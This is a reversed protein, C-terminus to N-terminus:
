NAGSMLLLKDVVKNMGMGRSGKVLAIDEKGLFKFLSASAKGLSNAKVTKVGREKAEEAALNALSGLTIMLDVGTKAAMRGIKRHAAEGRRGLELMDGLVLASRGKRKLESLTQIAARTSDPNANYSDNIVLAGNRLRVPEMRMSVPKVKGLKYAIKKPDIGFVFGVAFAPLCNHLHHLGLLSVAFDIEKGSVTIRGCMRGRKDAYTEILRIASESNEGFGIIRGKARSFISESNPDDANLVAVGKKGLSEILEGKASAVDSISRFNAMHAAGVNTVIGVDPEAIECLRTIEGKHSMGMEVVLATHKDTLQLLTLPLGIHNNLNGKTRHTTFRVSLATACLEKVTTKGNSGTVAVVKLNKFRRRHYHALQQLATVTDKVVIINKGSWAGVAGESVVALKAGKEFADKVFKHGDFREGKIAIYLNGPKITRSDISVGRVKGSRGEIRLTGDMAFAAERMDFQAM